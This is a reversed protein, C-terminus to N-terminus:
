KKLEKEIKAVVKNGVGSLNLYKKRLITLVEIDRNIDEDDEELLYALDRARDLSAWLEYYIEQKKM